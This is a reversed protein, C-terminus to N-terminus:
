GQRDLGGLIRLEASVETPMDGAPCPACIPQPLPYMTISVAGDRRILPGAASAEL